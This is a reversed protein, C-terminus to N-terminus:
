DALHKMMNKFDEFTIEKKGDPFAEKFIQEFDTKNV